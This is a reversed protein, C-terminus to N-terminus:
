SKAKWFTRVIKKITEKESPNFGFVFMSVCYVITYVVISAFYLWNSDFNLFNLVVGIFVPIVLAPVTKLISKWFRIVNIGMEKYYYINIIVGNCLVVSIATGIAVGIEQWIIAFFISIVINIIAMGSFVISRFRHKNEARQIEVGINQILPIVAPIMLILAVYFANAYGDGAWLAIFRKGFFIFGSAILALIMWQWRGVQIFLDTLQQDMDEKKQSVIMNVRPAFVSSISSSFSMYLANIKSAISYVAVSSATVFKGLIVKDTQWNIQDIIQNIAIFISFSMIEKFLDWRFRILFHMGLKKFSYVANIIDVILSVMTASLVIGISGYGLLVLTLGLLPSFVTKGMNVLKLFIFQEQSSIYSVFVSAPFSIALNVSLLVMLNKATHINDETYTSNFFAGANQALILGFGLAVIGLISFVIIYLGNLTKIGDEDDSAKYKSYFRLYSAGFGLSLLSLYAIISGAINYIGYEADGLTRLFIPTCILDIIINLAMQIYQLVVGWKIQSGFMRYEGLVRKM